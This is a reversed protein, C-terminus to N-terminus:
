DSSLPRPRNDWPIASNERQVQPREVFHNRQFPKPGIGRAPAGLVGTLGSGFFLALLAVVVALLVHLTRPAGEPPNSPRSTANDPTPQDEIPSSRAALLPATAENTMSEDIPLATAENTASEAIPLAETPVAEAPQVLPEEGQAMAPVFAERLPEAESSAPGSSKRVRKGGGETARDAERHRRRLAELIRLLARDCAMQYRRLREGEPTDQFGPAEPDAAVSERELHEALLAELREAQESVL